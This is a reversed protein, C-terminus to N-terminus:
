DQHEEFYKTWRKVGEANRDSQEAVMPWVVEISKDRMRQVEEESMEIIEGGADTLAKLADEVAEAHMESTEFYTSEFVGEIKERQWPTLENWKDLNVYIEQHQAPNWGPLSAYKIVEQFNMDAIGGTDWYTGEIAGL